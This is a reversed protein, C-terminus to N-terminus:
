RDLKTWTLTVPSSFGIGAHMPCSAHICVPCATKM